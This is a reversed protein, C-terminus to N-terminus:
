ARVTARGRCEAARDSMGLRMTVPTNVAKGERGQSGGGGGGVSCHEGGHGM